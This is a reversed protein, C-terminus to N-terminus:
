EKENLQPFPNISFSMLDQLDMAVARIQDDQTHKYVKKVLSDTSDGLLYQCMKESVGKKELITAYTHRLQHFSFDFAGETDEIMRRFASKSMKDGKASPVIYKSNAMALQEKTFKEGAAARKITDENKAKRDKLMEYLEACIPVRRIGAKSKTEDKDEPDNFVVTVAKDIRMMHRQWDVDMDWELPIIEGRRLGLYLGINVALEARDEKTHGTRPVRRLAQRLKMIEHAELAAREKVPVDVLTIDKKSVLNKVIKNNLVAYRFIQDLTMLVKKQLSISYGLDHGIYNIIKQIHILRVDVLNMHGIQPIIYKNIHDKYSQQSSPGRKKHKVAEWWEITWEAVTIAPDWDTAGLAANIEFQKKFADRKGDADKQSKRSYFYKPSAAGPPTYKAQYRGDKRRRNEDKNKAM